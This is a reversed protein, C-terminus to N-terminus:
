LEFRAIVPRHDSYTWDANGWDQNRLGYPSDAHLLAALSATAFMFDNQHPLNAARKQYRFTNVHRCQASHCPCRELPAEDLPRFPGILELGFARLREFVTAFREPWGKGTRGEWVNLDGAVLVYEAGREQFVVALDSLARHVTAEAYLLESDAMQDWLGYLSVM